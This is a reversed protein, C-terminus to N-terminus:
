VSCITPLTLHTYSVTEVEGENDTMLMRTEGDESVSTERFNSCGTLILVGTLLMLIKIKM